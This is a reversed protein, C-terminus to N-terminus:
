EKRRGEKGGERREKKEEKNKKKKKGREVGEQRKLSGFWLNLDCTCLHESKLSLEPWRRFLDWQM